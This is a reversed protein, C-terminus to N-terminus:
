EHAGGTDSESGEPGPQDAVDSSAVTDALTRMTASAQAATTASAVALEGPKGPVAAGLLGMDRARQVWRRITPLSRFERDKIYAYPNDPAAIIADRYLAAIHEFHERGYPRRGLRAQQSAPRTTAQPPDIGLARAFAPDEYWREGFQRLIEPLQIERLARATIETEPGEGTDVRLGTCVLRGGAQGIRVRLEFPLPPTESVRWWRAEEVLWLDSQDEDDLVRPVVNWVRKQASPTRKTVV